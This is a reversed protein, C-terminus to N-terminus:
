KLRLSAWRAKITQSLGESHSNGGSAHATGTGSASEGGGSGRPPPWSAPFSPPASGSPTPTTTSPPAGGAASASPSSPTSGGATTPIEIQDSIAGRASFIPRPASPEGGQGPHSRRRSSRAARRERQETIALQVLVRELEWNELLAATAAQQQPNVYEGFPLMSNMDEDQAILSNIKKAILLSPLILSFHTCAQRSNFYNYVIPFLM